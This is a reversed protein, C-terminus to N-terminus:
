HNKPIIEFVKKSGFFYADFEMFFNTQGLIVPVDNSRTWAFVLKVPRFSAVEAYAVLAYSELRALNGVLKVPYN